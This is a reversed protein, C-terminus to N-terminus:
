PRSNATRPLIIGGWHDSGHRRERAVHGIEIRPQPAKVLAASPKTEAPPLSGWAEPDSVGLVELPDITSLELFPLADGGEDLDLLTSPPGELPMARPRALKKATAVKKTTMAM